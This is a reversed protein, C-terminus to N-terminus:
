DCIKDNTKDQLKVAYMFVFYVVFMILIIFISFSSSRIAPVNAFSLCISIFKLACMFLAIKYIYNANEKIFPTKKNM